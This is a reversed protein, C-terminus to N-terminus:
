CAPIKCQNVSMQFLATYPTALQSACTKMVRGRIGDPGNAKQPNVAKFQRRVEQEDISIPQDNMSRLLVEQEKITDHFDHKDFRCYFVNLQDAKQKPDDINVFANERRKYDTMTELCKWAGKSNNNEFCSELKEKYCRKARNIANKLKENLDRVQEFNDRDFAARKERMISKLETNIWPKNNPYITVTKSQIHLSECFMVYSNITDTIKDISECSGFFLEWDTIDFATQM